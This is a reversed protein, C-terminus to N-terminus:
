AQGAQRVEALIQNVKPKKWIDTETDSYTGFVTLEGVKYGTQEAIFRQLHALGLANGYAKTILYQHRYVASLHLTHDRVTLDVHVLCPFGRPREDSSAFTQLGGAAELEGDGSIALDAANSVSWNRGHDSRLKKIRAAVQNYAPGKKNSWAMMREFYTGTRNFHHLAPLIRRYKEYLTNAADDLAAEQSTGRLDRSWPYGPSRYLSAPFITSAVTDVTQVHHDGIHHEVLHRDAVARIARHDEGLPNTVTTVVHVASGGSAAVSVLTAAWAEGITPQPPIFLVM